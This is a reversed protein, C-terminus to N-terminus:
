AVRLDYVEVDEGLSRRYIRVRHVRNDLTLVIYEVQEGDVPRVNLSGHKVLRYTHEETADIIGLQHYNHYVKWPISTKNEVILVEDDGALALKIRHGLRTLWGGSRQPSTQLPPADSTEIAAKM